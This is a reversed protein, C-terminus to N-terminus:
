NRPINHYQQQQHRQQLNNSRKAKKPSNKEEKIRKRQPCSNTLTRHNGECNICKKYNNKCDRWYHDHSSCESCVKREKPLPCKSTPHDELAYCRLCTLIPIYEEIKITHPAICMNYGLIGIETAKKPVITDKFTVKMIKTRPIKYINEIGSSMWHNEALFEELIEEEKNKLINEDTNFILITRKARLEPPLIPKFGNEQLQDYIATQFILDVDADSRTLVVFGDQTSIIRTAYILNESLTRLLTIKAQNNPEAHKIKVKPM